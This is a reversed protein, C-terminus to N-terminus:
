NPSTEQPQSPIPSAPVPNQQPATPAPESKPESATKPGGLQDILSPQGSTTSQGNPVAPGAPSTTPIRNLIDSSPNTISNLIVLLISTVFFGVALLATFRTLANKAGRETMFGSGGGVGLGGGESRQILVVGVLTIVILLHIVIIVTQM